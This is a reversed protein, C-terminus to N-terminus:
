AGNLSIYTTEIIRGDENLRDLVEDPVPDDLTYVSLAEGGITERGNFM